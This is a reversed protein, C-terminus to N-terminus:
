GMGGKCASGHGPGGSAVQGQGELHCGARGSDPGQGWVGGLWVEVAM